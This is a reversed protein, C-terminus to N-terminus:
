NTYQFYIEQGHSEGLHDVLCQQLSKKKLYAEEIYQRIHLETAKVFLEHTQYKDYKEKIKIVQQHFIQM